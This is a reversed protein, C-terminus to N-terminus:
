DQKEKTIKPLEGTAVGLWVWDYLSQYKAKIYSIRTNELSTMVQLLELNTTLNLRLDHLVDQYDQEYAQEAKQYADTEGLSDVLSKYAERIDDSATRRTLSLQLEAQRKKSAAQDEQAVIQGGEFLPLSALLQINWDNTPNGGDKQLYYQGQFALSPLHQGHAQLLEADAVDINAKASKVDPRKEVKSEADELSYAPQSYNEESALAQDPKLGALVALNERAQALLYKDNELDALTQMLQAQTNSVDATRSRGMVQWQKELNLIQQNLDRSKELAQLTEELSLVNYFANAVNLLLLRSQNQFNYQQLDINASAGQVAAVQNLGGFITEAGSLYLSNDAPQFSATQSGFIYSNSQFSKDENLYIQPLWAGIAQANQSKAQQVNEANTALTETHKVALAYVDWLNLVPKQAAKEVDSTTLGTVEQLPKEVNNGGVKVPAEACGSLFAM